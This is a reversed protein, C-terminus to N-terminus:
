VINHIMLHQVFLMLKNCTSRSIMKMRGFKSRVFSLEPINSHQLLLQRSKQSSSRPLRPFKLTQPVPKLTVYKAVDTNCRRHNPDRCLEIYPNPKGM